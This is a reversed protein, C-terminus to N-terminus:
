AAGGRRGGFRSETGTVLRLINARHTFFIFGCVLAAVGALVPRGPYVLSTAIAFATAGGMSAVSMYGTGSLLGVWVVAAVGLSAPALALFVGAATAVGKGGRFGVFPSYVHGLVAALGVALPWWSPGVGLRVALAVPVAGKAVDFAGAPIAAKWGLVRYLNTAGLNRSGVERLDLGGMWRALLYSSPVAGLLYAAPLWALALLTVPPSV